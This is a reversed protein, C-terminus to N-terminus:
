VNGSNSSQLDNDQYEAAPYLSFILVFFNCFTSFTRFFANKQSDGVCKIKRERHYTTKVTLTDNLMSICYSLVAKNNKSFSGLHASRKLRRRGFKLGFNAFKESM